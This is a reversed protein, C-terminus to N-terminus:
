RNWNGGGSLGGQAAEQDTLLWVRQVQGNADLLYRGLAGGPPLSAPVIILNNRDRIMGGPAMPANRGDISLTLEFVHRIQGASAEQPFERPLIQAGATTAGLVLLLAVPLARRLRARRREPSAASCAPSTSTDAKM